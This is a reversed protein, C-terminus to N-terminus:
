WQYNVLNDGIILQIIKISKSLNIVYTMYIYKLHYIQPMYDM